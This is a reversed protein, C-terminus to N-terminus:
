TAFFILELLLHDAADAVGRSQAREDLHFLPVVIVDNGIVKAENVLDVTVCRTFEDVVVLSLTSGAAQQRQLKM